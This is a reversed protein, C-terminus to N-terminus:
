RVSVHTRLKLEVPHPNLYYQKELYPQGYKRVNHNILTLPVILPTYGRAYNEAQEVLEQKEDSTLQKKFYGIMHYLVNVNKKVTTKLKLAQSLLELYNDFLRNIDEKSGAAVTRGMKRFLEVSHSMILLKHRTHFEVLRGMTKGENLLKRWRYYVFVSEIFTERLKPDHLRGDDEVPLLPFNDMFARAWIGVAKKWPVGNKDYIKIREMGSSPSKSKFIFGCLNEKELEALKIKAWSKMRDTYDTRTKNGILRPKAIEGELRMSERPVQLGCEVEPCVPVYEFWQGLTETIYSDLKHKGDYRVKDGVICSSIGIRIKYEMKNEHQNYSGVNM